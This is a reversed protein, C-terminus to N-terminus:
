RPPRVTRPPSTCTATSTASRGAPSSPQLRQVHDPQRHRRHPRRHGPRVATASASTPRRPGPRSRARDPVRRLRVAGRHGAREQRVGADHRHLRARRHAGPDANTPSIYRVQPAGRTPQAVYGSTLGRRPSSARRSTGPGPTAPISVNGSANSDVPQTCPYSQTAASFYNNRIWFHGTPSCGGQASGGANFAVNGEWNIWEAGADDYYTFNTYRGNFAVNGKVQLGKALTAVPDITGDTKNVYGAQHGEVYIAGGDSRVSMYDHFLNNSITNSENINTSNQPTSAQDVHGQIVGATIATYPLDYLANNTIRTGRSFLLTIGCASSYDTGIHHIVNDSM